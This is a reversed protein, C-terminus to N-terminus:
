KKKRRSYNKLNSIQIELQEIDSKTVPMFSTFGTRAETKIETLKIGLLEKLEDVTLNVM